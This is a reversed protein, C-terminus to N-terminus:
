REWQNAYRWGDAHWQNRMPQWVGARRGRTRQPPPRQFPLAEEHPYFIWQGAPPGPPPPDSVPEPVFLWNGSWSGEIGLAANMMPGNQQASGVAATGRPPFRNATQSPDQPVPFPASVQAYGQGCAGCAAVLFGCRCKAELSCASAWPANEPISSTAMNEAWNGPLSPPAHGQAVTTAAVYVADVSPQKTPVGLGTATGGESQMSATGGKDLGAGDGEQPQVTDFVCPGHAPRLDLVASPTKAAPPAKVSPGAQEAAQAAEESRFFGRVLASSLDSPVENATVELRGFLEAGLSPAEEHDFDALRQLDQTEGSSAASSAQWSSDRRDRYYNYERDNTNDSRAYGSTAPTSANSSSRRSSTRSSSRRSQNCAHAATDFGLGEFAMETDASGCCSSVDSAHSSAVSTASGAVVGIREWSPCSSTESCSSSPAPPRAKPLPPAKGKCLLVADVAPSSVIASSSKGVLSSAKQEAAQGQVMTPAKRLPPAPPSVLGHKPGAVGSQAHLSHLRRQEAERALESDHLDKLYSLPPAKALLEFPRENGAEAHFSNMTERLLHLERFAISPKLGGTSPVVLKLIEPHVHYHLREAEALLGARQLILNRADQETYTSTRPVPPPPKVRAAHAAQITLLLLHDQHQRDLADITQNGCCSKVLCRQCGEHNSHGCKCVWNRSVARQLTMSIAEHALTGAGPNATEVVYSLQDALQGPDIGLAIAQTCAAHVDLTAKAREIVLAPAPIGASPTPM